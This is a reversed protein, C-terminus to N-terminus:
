DWSYITYYVPRVPGEGPDGELRGDGDTDLYTYRIGTTPTFVVMYVQGNRRYEEVTMDETRRITVQPAAEDPTTVKPPLPQESRIPETRITPEPPREAPIVKETPTEGADELGVTEGDRSEDLAPPPPPDMPGPAAEIGEAPPPPVEDAAAPQQALAGPAGLALLLTLVANRM